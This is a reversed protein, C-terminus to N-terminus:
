PRRRWNRPHRSGHLIAVVVVAGASVRFYISFPFRRMLARHTQRWMLPYRLPSEGIARIARAAEDLFEQGLGQRHMEYWTAAEALDQDAEERLRVPYM